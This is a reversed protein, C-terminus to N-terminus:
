SNSKITRIILADFARDSLWRRMFLMLKAFKGASYRTCPRKSQIAKLILRAIVMPPSGGGKEYMQYNAKALKRVLDGYPGDGSREVMPDRMVNGFETAIVGPEIVVVDVGFRALEIRLCDSWGELAFKTAHYWAGFPTHIKGAISAINIIRGRGRERMHPILKQTLSALGFLNVEFQRRAVDIPVDEIAGYEAYGANNILVDVRKENELIHSVVAEIDEEITIDMKMVKAGLTELEAMQEVRRAVCYVTFNNKLLLTATERGIGSSAGTILAVQTNPTNM